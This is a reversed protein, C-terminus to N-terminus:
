PLKWHSNPATGVEALGRQKASVRQQFVAYIDKLVAQSDMIYSHGYARIVSSASSADITEIQPYVFVGPITEGVRNFRHLARSARLALDTSSAYVTIRTGQMAALKPAIVTRFLDANIDPAALVLERLKSVEKGKEVRARLAKSVIRNGMSHAVLYVDSAPLSSLDEVLQEFVGESLEAADADQLYATVRAASPWSYFFPVGAFKLDHALQATRMAAERFGVNYGHVFALIAKSGSTQLRDAMESRTADLSLPEVSKLVFHKNRDERELRWLSPLEINGPSHTLPITVVARGYELTGEVKAGYFAAPESAGSRNRNTAYYTTIEVLSKASPAKVARRTLVPSPQPQQITLCEIQFVMNILQEHDKRLAESLSKSRPDAAPPLAATKEAIERELRQKRNELTSLDDKLAARCPEPLDPAQTAQTQGTSPGLMVVGLILLLRAFVHDEM